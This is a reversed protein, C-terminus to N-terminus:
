AEDQVYHYEMAEDCTYSECSSLLLPARTVCSTGLLPLRGSSLNNGLTSLTQMSGHPLRILRLYTVLSHFVVEYLVSRSSFFSSFSLSFVVRVVFFLLVFSHGLALPEIAVPFLDLLPLM